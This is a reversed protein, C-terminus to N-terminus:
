KGASMKPPEYRGTVGTGLSRVREEPKRLFSACVFHLYRCAPLIAMCM